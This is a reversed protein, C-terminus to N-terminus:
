AKNTTCKGSTKVGLYLMYEEKGGSMSYAKGIDM